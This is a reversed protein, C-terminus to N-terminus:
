GPRTAQVTNVPPQLKRQGNKVIGRQHQRLFQRMVRVLLLHQAKKFLAHAHEVADRYGPRAAAALSMPANRSFTRASPKLIFSSVLPEKGSLSMSM